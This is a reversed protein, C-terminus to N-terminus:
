GRSANTELSFLACVCVRVCVSLTGRGLILVVARERWPRTCLSGCIWTTALVATIRRLLSSVSPNRDGREAWAASSPKEKPEAEAEAVWEPEEEEEDEDSLLALAASPVFSVADEPTGEDEVEELSKLEEDDEDEEDEEDDLSSARM